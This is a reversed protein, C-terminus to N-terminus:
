LEDERDLPRWARSAFAAVAVVGLIVYVLAVDRLAPRDLREALVLLIGVGLTGFLQATIMRDSASPGKLTRAVGVLINFLLFIAVSSYVVDMM